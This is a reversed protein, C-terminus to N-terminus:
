GQGGKFTVKHVKGTALGKVVQKGAGLWTIELDVPGEHAGLGFHLRLQNQNGEGTGSEVQRTLVRDKLKVRVIAGIASRNVKKGDGELTVAIWGNKPSAKLQNIWLKGATALDLDGDNDIDGWASQYTPPLSGLGQEATVNKFKWAGENTYLVSHNHGYVTTFYLDLDGDNDYDAAACGIGYSKDGLGSEATVDTWGNGDNRYLKNYLPKEKNWGPLPAGQLFYIDLDGDNDFDFLACGSGM